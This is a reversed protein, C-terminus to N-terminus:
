LDVRPFKVIPAFWPFGFSLSYVMKGTWLLVSQGMSRIGGPLTQVGGGSHPAVQPKAGQGTSSGMAPETSGELIFFLIQPSLKEHPCGEFLSPSFM